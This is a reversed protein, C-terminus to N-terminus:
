FVTLKGAFVVEVAVVVCDFGSDDEPEVIMLVKLSGFLAVFLAFWGVEDVGKGDGTM